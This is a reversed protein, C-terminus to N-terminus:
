NLPNDLKRPPRVHYPSTKRQAKLRTQLAPSLPQARMSKELDRRIYIDYFDVQAVKRWHKAV